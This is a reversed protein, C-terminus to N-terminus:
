SVDIEGTMSPHISCEYKYTGAKTLKVTGSKGTTLKGTDFSSPASLSKVDHTSSDKNTFTVSTGAKVKLTQPTFKFGQITVAGSSATATTPTTTGSSDSKSKSCGTILLGLALTAAAIRYTTRM